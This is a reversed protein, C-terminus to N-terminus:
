LYEVDNGDSKTFREDVCLLTIGFLRTGAGFFLNNSSINSVTNTPPLLKM